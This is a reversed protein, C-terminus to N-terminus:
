ANGGCKGVNQSFHFKKALRTGHLHFLEFSHKERVMVKGYTSHFHFNKKRVEPFPITQTYPSSLKYKDNQKRPKLKAFRCIYPSSSGFLACKIKNLQM